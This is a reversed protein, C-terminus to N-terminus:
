RSIAWVLALVCAVTLAAAALLYVWAPRGAPKPPKRERTGDADTDEGARYDITEDSRSVVPSSGEAAPAGEVQIPSVVTSADHISGGAPMRVSSSESLVCVELAKVVEAMTAPRDEPDKALMREFLEDLARPVDDRQVCLSPIPDEEHALLTAVLTDRPYPPGGTLLYHLTCGLSYMDSRADALRTDAAQEPSMYNATGLMQRPMTLRGRSTARSQEFRVLGLDLIKVTGNGDLLLNSPKIDRHIIGHQHAYALGCAAQLTFNVAKAVSLRQESWKVYTDLNCGSIYEMVMFHRGDDEDADHVTVINSHSLKAGAEVERRFREVAERSDLASRPLTKIAVHRNMRRHRAKYVFGMSGSGIRELLEYKGLVLESSKGKLVMAAQFSTLMRARVLEAAVKQVDAVTKPSLNDVFSRLDADTLIGVDSISEIFKALSVPM